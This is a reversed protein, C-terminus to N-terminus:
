LNLSLCTLATTFTEGAGKLHKLTTAFYTSSQTLSGKPNQCVPSKSSYPVLSMPTYLFAHNYLNVTSDFFLLFPISSVFCTMFLSFHHPQHTPPGSMPRLIQLPSYPINYFQSLQLCLLLHKFFYQM